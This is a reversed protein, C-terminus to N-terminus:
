YDGVANGDYRSGLNQITNWDITDSIFKVAGDAMAVHAGGSHFSRLASIGWNDPGCGNCNANVDPGQPNPTTLVNFLPQTASGSYWANHSLTVSNSGGGAGNNWVALGAALYAYAQAQTYASAPPAPSTVNVIVNGFDRPIGGIKVEGMLFTNSTGDIIDSITVTRTPNIVGNQATLTGTWAISAGGNGVYNLGPSGGSPNKPSSDSPCLFAPITVNCVNTNLQTAPACAAYNFNGNGAAAGGRSCYNTNYSNFLPSQDIYPLISVLFSTNKWDMNSSCGSGFQSTPFIRFTDHYNHLALGMQKMNNKCQTRRAAERAQQVAPLLLAILVAIIAIVVLLEILTFASRRLRILTM